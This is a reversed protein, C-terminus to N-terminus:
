AANKRAWGRLRERENLSTGGWIGDEIWHDMAYQLCEDRVECRACVRKAPIGNSGVEPFFIDPDADLCEAKLRWETEEM